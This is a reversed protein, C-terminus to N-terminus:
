PTTAIAPSLRDGDKLRWGNLADTARMPPKGAPQIMVLELAGSAFGLLVKSDHVSLCGPPVSDTALRVERLRVPGFITEIWAGPAPTFARFRNYEQKAPAEVRLRAEAKEVKAAHTALDHDQPARPYDGSVIRPMWEEAVDAAIVSLRSTLEDATEDPEIPTKAIAIIDGTDMGRDMQMLTVGTESDGNLIARQIPAAGRYRPLISGHLNIGGRAASELVATSLIQGYAAVVLADAQEARLAEVVSAERCKEPTIVPLGFELARQKVPSPKLALGRGSPRDPQSVVLCIYPSLRELAPIAFGATGMYILKM